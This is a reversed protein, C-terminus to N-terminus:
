CKEKNTAFWSKTTRLYFQRYQVLKEPLQLNDLYYQRCRKQLQQKEEPDRLKEVAWRLGDVSGHEVVYGLKNKTVLSDMSMARSVLVATGVMMAEYFKTPDLVRNVPVAPDYFITVADVQRTLSLASNYPLRGLYIVNHTSELKETLEISHCKGAVLLETRNANDSCFDLLWQSGRSADLYGMYSLRIIGAKRPPLIEDISPLQDLVDHCTNPIEFIQRKSKGWLGIYPVYRSTPIVFASSIGMVVWDAAYAIKQLIWTFRYCLAFPDRMDYILRRRALLAIISAPFVSQIDFVQIVNSKIRLLNWLLWFQFWITLLIVKLSRQPATKMFSRIRVGEVIMEKPDDRGYRNWCLINIKSFVERSAEIARPIAPSCDYNGSRVFVISLHRKQFASPGSFPKAQKEKDQNTDM